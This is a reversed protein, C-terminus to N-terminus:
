PLAEYSLVREIVKALQEPNFPQTLWGIGNMGPMNHDSIVLDYAGGKALGSSM